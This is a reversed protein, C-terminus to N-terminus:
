SEEFKDEEEGPVDFYNKGHRFIKYEFPGPNTFQFMESAAKLKRQTQGLLIADLSVSDGQTKALLADLGFAKTILGSLFADVSVSRSSLKSLLADIFIEKAGEEQAFLIADLSSSKTLSLKQLLSDISATKTLGLGNLLSDMSVTKTIERSLMGDLSTAKTLQKLLVADIGVAKGIIAYLFSDLSASRTLSLKQLLSDLSSSKTLNLKSLLSDLSVDRTYTMAAYLIADLDVTKLITKLLYSDLSAIKTQDTKNLLGDASLTKVQNLKQLVSDISPTRTLIKQLYSDLSATKTFIKQLYSDLNVTKTYTVAQWTLTQSFDIWPAYDNAGSDADALEGATTDGYRISINRTTTTASRFGVEIVLYDGATANQSTLPIPRTETLNWARKNALPTLGMEQPSAASDSGVAALLVARDAGGPQIIKVAVALTANAGANSEFCQMVLNITGAINQAALPGIVWRFMARLTPSTTGTAKLSTTMTSNIRALLGAFTLPTVQNAFNWTSPTVPASGSSPLYIRTVM